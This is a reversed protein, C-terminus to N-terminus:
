AARWPSASCSAIVHWGPTQYQMDELWHTEQLTPIMRVDPRAEASLPLLHQMLEAYAAQSLGGANYSFLKLTCGTDSKVSDNRVRAPKPQRRRRRGILSILLLAGGAETTPVISLVRRPGAVPVSIHMNRHPLTPPFALARKFGRPM